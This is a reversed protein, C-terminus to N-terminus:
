YRTKVSGWATTLKDTHEVALIQALGRTIIKSIDDGTLAQNFIAVEDIAGTFVKTGGSGGRRGIEVPVDSTSIPGAFAVSAEEVGDTYVKIESGDWTAAVHHWESDTVVTTATATTGSLYAKVCGPSAADTTIHINYNRSVNDDKGVINCGATDVNVWSVLTIADTIQLDEHDPIELYDGATGPFELATGFKGEVQEVKGIIQGDHGNGSVDKVVDDALEDFLWIAVISEPDIKAYSSSVLMGVVALVAMAVMFLKVRM